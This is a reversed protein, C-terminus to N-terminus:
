RDAMHELTSNAAKPVILTPPRRENSIERRSRENRHRQFWQRCASHRDLGSDDPSGDNDFTIMFSLRIYGQRLSPRIWVRPRGCGSVDQFIPASLMFPHRGDRAGGCLTTWGIPRVVARTDSVDRHTKARLAPLSDMHARWGGRTFVVSADNGSRQGGILETGLSIETHLDAYCLTPVQRPRGFAM